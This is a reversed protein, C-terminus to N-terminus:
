LTPIVLQWNGYDGVFGQHMMPLDAKAPRIIPPSQMVPKAPWENRMWLIGVFGQFSPAWYVGKATGAPQTFHMATMEGGAKITWRRAIPKLYYGGVRVASVNNQTENEPLLYQGYAIVRDKWNIGAGLYPNM